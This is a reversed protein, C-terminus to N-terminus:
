IVKNNKFNNVMIFVAVILAMSTWLWAAIFVSGSFFNQVLAQLFIVAVWSYKTNYKFIYLSYKICYYIMISFPVFGLLGMSQLIEVFLNHPYHNSFNMQLKDGFIPNELFQQFSSHWIQLRIASDSNQSIAESTGNLRQLLGSGLYTDFFILILIIFIFLATLYLRYKIKKNSLVFLVFPIFLAFLAGRSAGLFFPVVSLVISSILLINIKKSSSNFLFYFLLVGIILASCYSLILPSIVNEDASASNLRSVKGIFKGYYYIVFFSFLFGPFLLSYFVTKMIDETLRIKHIVYFPLFCFSIFYLLLIPYSLYYFTNNSVDILVRLIFLFSFILFPFTLRSKIIKHKKLSGIGVFSILSICIIIRLFISISRNEGIEMLFSTLLLILYFGLFSLSFVSFILKRFVSEIKVIM